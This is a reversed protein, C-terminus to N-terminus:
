IKAFIWFLKCDRSDQLVRKKSTKINKGLRWWQRWRLTPVSCSPDLQIISYNIFYEFCKWWLWWSLVTVALLSFFWFFQGTRRMKFKNCWIKDYNFSRVRKFYINFGLTDTHIVELLMINAISGIIFDAIHVLCHVLTGIYWNHPQRYAAVPLSAKKTLNLAATCASTPSSCVSLCSGRNCVM